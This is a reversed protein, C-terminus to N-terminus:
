NSGGGPPPPAPAEAPANGAPPDLLTSPGKDSLSKIYAILNKIDEDTVAQLVMQNGYGKVIKASPVRISEAYYNDDKAATTSGDAFEGPYGYNNVWSPASGVKGPEDVHCALCGKTKALWKGIQAPTSGEPPASWKRVTRVYEDPPVIKLVAIMESHSDGCYEACFVFHEGVENARFTFNTYRNPFVDAKARFDPIYFSHLVDNSKMRLLVPKGAPAVFVPVDLATNLREKSVTEPSAAGNSYEFKWFWKQGVLNIEEYGAEAVHFNIFGKFGEFFMWTMAILPVICWTLELVTNHAASRTTTVGPRRRYRFIFVLMLGIVVIFAILSIWFIAMFLFDNHRGVSTPSGGGVFGGQQRTGYWMDHFIDLPLLHTVM